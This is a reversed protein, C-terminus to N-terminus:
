ALDTRVGSILENFRLEIPQSFEFANGIQEGAINDLRTILDEKNLSPDPWDSRPKLMIVADSINPPMPDVAAEATGTRSFITRVEPQAIIARELAMQMTLSQDLSTSPVRLAQMAIDGEDLTPTFERGLSQFAGAGVALALLASGLVLVPRSVAAYIAPEIFRRAYRILRTEHEGETAELAIKPERVFLAAMAPVLTFSLIFAGALALMFTAAMPQFTKGEVGELTLIPAFVLLIIVQGFAAPKVMRRAAQVAVGLREGATLSRGLEKRRQSLM